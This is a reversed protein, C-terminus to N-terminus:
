IMELIEDLAKYYAEGGSKFEIADYPCSGACFVYECDRCFKVDVVFKKGNKVISQYKIANYPCVIICNGCGICLDERIILAFDVLSYKANSQYFEDISVTVIDSFHKLASLMRSLYHPTFGLFLILDYRGKGDFGRWDEDLLFQTVYHLSRSASQLKVGRGVLPKSSGGTAIIPIGKEYFKVAYDVLREDKLLRGGTILVPRRAELILKAILEPEATIGEKCQVDAPNRRPIFFVKAEIM